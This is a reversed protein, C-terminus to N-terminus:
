FIKVQRKFSLLNLGKLSQPLKNYLIIGKHSISNLSKTTRHQTIHLQQSIRTNHAHLGSNIQFKDKHKHIFVVSELIYICPLPLIGLERYIPKTSNRLPVRKMAKLMKKAM